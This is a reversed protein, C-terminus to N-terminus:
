LGLCLGLQSCFIDKLKSFHCKISTQTNRHLSSYSYARPKLEDRERLQLVVVVKQGERVLELIEMEGM